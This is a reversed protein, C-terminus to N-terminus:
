NLELDIARELLEAIKLDCEKQSDLKDLAVHM